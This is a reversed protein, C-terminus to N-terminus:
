QIPMQMRNKSVCKSNFYLTAGSRVTTRGFRENLKQKAQNLRDSQVSKQPDSFLDLQQGNAPTLRTLFAGASRWVHNSPIQLFLKQFAVIWENFDSTPREFRHGFGYTKFEKDRLYLTLEGAFLEHDCLSELARELHYVALGRVWDLNSTPKDFSSTRGISKPPVAASQLPFAVEGRMERWLQLGTQGLLRNVRDHPMHAFQLGTKIGWKQLLAERNFGIGPIEGVPLTALFSEIGIGPVAMVGNPKRIECAIKALTKNVSIGFSVTIGLATKVESQIKQAIAEFPLRYLDCLGGMDMFAEDISCEEVVPSWQRLVAMLRRSMLTYYRFDGQLYIGKPCLKKAEWFPMATGIGLAKAEPSKALICSGLRGLVMLPKGRHEPHRALECHAFFYDADILAIANPWNALM